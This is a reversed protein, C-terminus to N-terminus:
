LHLPKSRDQCSLPKRGYKIYFDAQPDDRVFAHTQRNGNESPQPSIRAKKETFAM